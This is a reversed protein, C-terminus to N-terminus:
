RSRTRKEDGYAKGPRDAASAISYFRAMQGEPGILQEQHDWPGTQSHSGTSHLAWEVRETKPSIPTKVKPRRAEPFV